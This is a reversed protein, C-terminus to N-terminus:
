DCARLLVDLGLARLSLGRYLTRPKSLEGDFVKDVATKFKACNKEWKLHVTRIYEPFCDIRGNPYLEEIRRTVVHSPVTAPVAFGTAVPTSNGFGKHELDEQSAYWPLVGDFVYHTTIFGAASTGQPIAIINDELRCAPDDIAAVLEDCVSLHLITRMSGIMQPMAAFPTLTQTEDPIRIKWMCAPRYGELMEMVEDPLGNPCPHGQMWIPEFEDFNIDEFERWPSDGDRLNEM